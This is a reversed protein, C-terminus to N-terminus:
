RLLVFRRTKVFSGAVMRYLYVGSPLRGQDGTGDWWLSYTGPDHFRNVLTAVKRGIVSYVNVAVNGPRACSYRILSSSVLPNPTCPGLWSSYSVPNGSVIQVTVAMSSTPSKLKAPPRKGPTRDMPPTAFAGTAFPGVAGLACVLGLLITWRRM